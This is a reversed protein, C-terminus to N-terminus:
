TDADDETNRSMKSRTGSDADFLVLKRYMLVFRWGNGCSGSHLELADFNRGVM